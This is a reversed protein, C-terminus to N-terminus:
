PYDQLTVISPITTVPVFSHFAGVTVDIEDEEVVGCLHCVNSDEKISTGSVLFSEDVHCCQGFFDWFEMYLCHQCKVSIITTAGCTFELADTM